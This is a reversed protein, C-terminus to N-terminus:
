PVCDYRLDNMAILRGLIEQRKEETCKENDVRCPGGCLYRLDCSKCEDVSDVDNSLAAERLATIASKLDEKQLNVIVNGGACERVAGDPEISLSCGFGCSSNRRGPEWQWLDLGASTKWDSVQDQLDRCRRVFQIDSRRDVSRGQLIGQAISVTFSRGLIAHLSQFFAKGKRELHELSLGPVPVVAIFLELSTGKLNKISETVKEFVGRGRVSDNSVEDPGDLSIQIRDLGSMELERVTERDLLTGNSLLLTKIGCRSAKRILEITLQKHLFLPEGGSIRLVRGGLSIFEDLIAHWRGESLESPERLGSYRYCTKCRLNCANTLTLTLMRYVPCFKDSTPMLEPWLGKDLLETMLEDFANQVSPEPNARLLELLVTSPAAGNSLLRLIEPSLREKLVLWRALEPFVIVTAQKTKHFTFSTPLPIPEDMFLDHHEIESSM